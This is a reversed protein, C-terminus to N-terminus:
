HRHGWQVPARPPEHVLLDIQSLMDATRDSAADPIGIWRVRLYGHRDVLFELHTQAGENSGDAQVAFMAYANAVKPSAIAFISEGGGAIEADVASGSASTPVAIVRAGAARLAREKMALQRLRPLSEPLTYFVLLTVRNGRQRELSEQPRGIIEFTFDPAVVPLLPKVRDTMAMANQAEAQADLFQILDWIDMDSLRSAFGPMPTGPIGRAIWWFLDGERRDPVRETLSAPRIPLSSAAAGDGQGDRGHCAICHSAYLAAGSAIADATYRVPSTSYTTPYAPVALLWAFLGAPVVVGALAAIPLRPPRGLAARVVIAAAICAVAGAAALVLQIWASQQIRQWSLTHEFPWVPSQHTAPVTVGLAGVIIVVGIGAAIELIANRRLLRVAPRDGGALRPALYGRNAVALGLMAAFLGLKALLLRGYDTGFLAPVDGVLYWANTLGGVILVSVSAVSLSSFRRTVQAIGDLTRTGGLFHVLAPMAGLWAGAALLHAVDAVIQSYDDPRQGAVAHGAWALSGLYAAAAVVAGITLRSRLPSRASRGLALLVACLTIVLGLRLAWVHGFSTDGVVLGLTERNMAQAVPMGSMIAAEAAFWSAGSVISAIVSWRLAGLLRHHIDDGAVNATDRALSWAPRAVAVVFVLEGFLLMASAYHVARAAVFLTSM